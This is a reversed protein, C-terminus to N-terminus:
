HEVAEDTVSVRVEDLLMHRQKHLIGTRRQPQAFGSVSSMLRHARDAQLAEFVGVIKYCQELVEPEFKLAIVGKPRRTLQAVERILFAQHVGVVDSRCVPSNTGILLDYFSAM